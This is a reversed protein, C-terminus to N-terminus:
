RTFGELRPPIPRAPVGVVTQEAPVDRLVVAGAGVRSWAGVRCRPAITAGIGVLAGTDMQVEGGTHAGPAVHVHDGIRNHHDLTCATNLIVNEGVVSAPNVVVGACIQVGVGIPVDPAIIAGPHRAVAFSRGAARFQQFLRQRVANDGIAIILADHMVNDMHAIPGLVPLGLVRQGHLRSDDDLLGIPQESAGAAHARLLIDVVVHAHGGAGVILIRM